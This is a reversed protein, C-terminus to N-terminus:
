GHKECMKVLLKAGKKADGDGALKALQDIFEWYEKDCPDCEAGCKAGHECLGSCPEGITTGHVCANDEDKDSM